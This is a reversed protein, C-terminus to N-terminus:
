IHGGATSVALLPQVALLSPGQLLVRLDQAPNALAIPDLLRHDRIAAEIVRRYSGANVLVAAVLRSECLHLEILRDARDSPRAVTQQSRAFSGLIQVNSDYQDTWFWPVVTDLDALGCMARAATLAQTEANHWSERRSRLSDGERLTTTVDGAAFVDACSTQARDNVVIGGDVLISTGHAIETNPVSGVGVLVVDCAVSGEALQISTVSTTGHFANVIIGLQIQVGHQRHLRYLFRSVTDSGLRGALVSGADLLTVHCGLQRASAAVELGVVGGGVIAVRAEPRLHERLRLADEAERLYCVGPLSEGPVGLRRPRVGTCLLLQDYPLTEGSALEVQHASTHLVTVRSGLRLAVGAALLQDSSAIPAAGPDAGHSLCMKSLPPREYPSRSEQGVLTIPGTLGCNRLALAARVGAQGAGVIVVRQKM